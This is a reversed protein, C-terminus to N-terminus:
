VGRECLLPERNSRFRQSDPQNVQAIFSFLDERRLPIMTLTPSM